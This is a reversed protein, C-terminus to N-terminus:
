YDFVSSYDKRQPYIAASAAFSRVAQDPLHQIDSATHWWLPSRYGEEISGCSQMAVHHNLMM